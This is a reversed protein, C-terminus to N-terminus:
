HLTIMPENRENIIEFDRSMDITISYICGCHPFSVNVSSSDYLGRVPVVNAAGEMKASWAHLPDNWGPCAENLFDPGDKWAMKNNVTVYAMKRFAMDIMAFYQDKGYSFCVPQFRDALMFIDAGGDLGRVAAILRGYKNYYLRAGDSKTDTAGYRSWDQSIEGDPMVTFGNAGIIEAEKSALAVPLKCGYLIGNM